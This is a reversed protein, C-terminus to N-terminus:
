GVRTVQTLLTYEGDGDSFTRTDTFSGGVAPLRYALYVPNYTYTQSGVLDDHYLSILWDIGDAIKVCATGLWLVDGQGQIFGGVDRFLKATDRLTDPVDAQDSEWLQVSFGMGLPAPGGSCSMYMCGEDALFNATDGTDIDGFVRSATSLQTGDLGVGNFIWYPEDSGLLDIGTEDNAHFALAKVAYRPQSPCTPSTSAIASKVNDTEKSEAVVRTSDATFRVAIYCSSRTLHITESRSAGTALSAHATDKILGAGDQQVSVHFANAPATGKNAVTYSIVWDSAGATVSAASFLLNPKDPPLKPDGDPNPSDLASAASAFCLAALALVALLAIRMPTHHTFM